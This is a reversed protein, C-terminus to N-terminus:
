ALERLGTVLAAWRGKEDHTLPRCDLYDHEYGRLAETVVEAYSPKHVDDLVLVSGGSAALELIRGLHEIRAPMRGLDYFILAYPEEGPEFESWAFLRETGAGQAALYERTRGLWEPSDDVSTVEAGSRAAWTRLTWSSFGSGLDLVRRPSLNECLLRLLAATELSVAMGPTSVETTYLAHHGELEARLEKLRSKAGRLLPSRRM